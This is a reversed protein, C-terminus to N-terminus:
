VSTGAETGTLASWAAEHSEDFGQETHKRNSRIESGGTVVVRAAVVAFVGATFNWGRNGVVRSNGDLVLHSQDRAMAASINNSTINTAQLVVYSSNCACLAVQVGNVHMDPINTPVVVGKISSNTFIVHSVGCVSVLCGRSSCNQDWSVGQFNDAKFACLSADVAIAVPGGVCVMEAHKIGPRIKLRQQQEPLVAGTSLKLSDTGYGEIHLRCVATAPHVATPHYATVIAAPWAAAAAAPLQSEAIDASSATVLLLLVLAYM